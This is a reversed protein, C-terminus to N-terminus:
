ATAAASVVRGAVVVAAVGAALTAAGVVSGVVVSNRDGWQIKRRQYPGPRALTALDTPTHVPAQRVRDASQPCPVPDRLSRLESWRPWNHRRAPVPVRPAAPPRVAPGARPRHGPPGPRHRRGPAPRCVPDACGAPAFHPM